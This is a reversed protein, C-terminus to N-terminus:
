TSCWIDCDFGNMGDLYSRNRWLFSLANRNNIDLLRKTPKANRSMNNCVIKFVPKAPNSKSKRVLKGDYLGSFAPILGVM